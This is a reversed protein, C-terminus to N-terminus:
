EAASTWAMRASAVFSSRGPFRMSGRVRLGNVRRYTGIPEFWLAHEFYDVFRGITAGSAGLPPTRDRNDRARRLDDLRPACHRQFSGRLRGGLESSPPRYHTEATQATSRMDIQLLIGYVM